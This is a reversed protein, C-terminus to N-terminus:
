LYRELTHNLGGCSCLYLSISQVTIVDLNASGDVDGVRGTSIGRLAEAFGLAGDDLTEGIREHHVTAVVALLKHSDSDNRM